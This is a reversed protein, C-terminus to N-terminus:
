DTVSHTDEGRQTFYENVSQFLTTTSERYEARLEGELLLGIVEEQACRAPKTRVDDAPISDFFYGRFDNRLDPILDRRNNDLITAVRRFGLDQLLAAIKRVNDAGGAGWGYFRNQIDSEIELQELVQPYHVVDEPGELLIVGDEQFFVERAHLNLIHPNNRNQSPLLGRLGEITERKLQSIKCSGDVKHVRAVEAGSLIHEFDIFYPSHTAYVIQKDVAQEALLRALRRQYTPHLSLEPEDVIVISGPPSDYLADILFILSILGEGLGDSNHTQGNASFKLYYSEHDDQDITWEPMDTVVKRLEEEFRALKEESQFLSSLRRTFRSDPQSRNQQIRRSRTYRERDDTGADFHPDFFRRSPLVYCINPLIGQPLRETPGGGRPITRLSHSDGSTFNVSISVRDGALSNRKGETISMDQQSFMISLAELVTSKGGNNPGVLVTLGSGIADTPQAFRIKQEQAFGRYGELTLSTLHM